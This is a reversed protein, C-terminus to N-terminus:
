THDSQFDEQHSSEEEHNKIYNEIIEDTINGASFAGYGIAWFHRGWYRNRLHKYEAQIKRSSRGKLRKVIESISWKPPYSIFLHIHNKSVVGSIIQIDMSACEQRILDRVRTGVEQNLVSYRYKTIWVLHVKLNFTSHSSKRFKVM